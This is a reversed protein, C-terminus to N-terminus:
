AQRTSPITENPSDPDPQSERAAAATERDDRRDSSAEGASDTSAHILERKVKMVVDRVHRRNELVRGFLTELASNVIMLLIAMALGAFTSDIAVSFRSVIEGVAAGEDGSRGRMALWLAFITGLVGLLPYAEIGSRAVTWATEFRYSDLYVRREDLIRMRARLTERQRPDPLADHIDAVFATIRDSLHADAGLRSPHPLGATFRDLTDALRRLDRRAWFWLVLFFLLHLFGLVLIAPTFWQTILDLIM